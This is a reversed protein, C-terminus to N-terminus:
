KKPLQKELFGELKLMTKWFVMRKLKQHKRRRRRIRRCGKQGAMLQSRPREM